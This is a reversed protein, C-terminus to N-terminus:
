WLLLHTSVHLDLKTNITCSDNVDSISFDDILRIKEGQQFPFRRSVTSGFELDEFKWPGDAWGRELEAKTEALLAEDLESSGSTKTMGMVLDPLFSIPGKQQSKSQRLQPRIRRDNQM